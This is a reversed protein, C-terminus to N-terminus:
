QQAYSVAFKKVSVAIKNGTRAGNVIEEKHLTMMTNEALRILSDELEVPIDLPVIKSLGFHQNEFSLHVTTMISNERNDKNTITVVSTKFAKDKAAKVKERLTLPRKSAPKAKAVPEEPTDGNVMAKLKDTKINSPFELGMEEAQALLAKRDVM